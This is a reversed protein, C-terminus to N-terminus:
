GNTQVQQNTPSTKDMSLCTLNAYWDNGRTDGVYEAIYVRYFGDAAIPSPTTSAGAEGGDTSDEILELQIDSQNIQVQSAVKINPNLLCQVIIGDNTQNPTGVLGTKSNLVIATNPVSGTLKVSQYKGNQISWTTNTNYAAVQLYDRSMGYMVRGRPLAHSDTDDVFGREIGRDFMPVLAADIIDSQKVNGDLTTNVVSNNYADDGDGAAIDIFTDVNNESGYIVQKINGYFITGFNSDYGAQLTIYTFEKQIRAVLDQSLNYVRIKAANPTQSDTLKVDFVIRLNSLDLGDGSDTSVLLKVKKIYQIQSM